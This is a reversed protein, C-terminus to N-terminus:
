SSCRAGLRAPVLGLLCAPLGAGPAGRDGIVGRFCNGINLYYYVDAFTLGFAVPPEVEPPEVVGAPAM